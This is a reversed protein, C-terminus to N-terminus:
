KLLALMMHITQSSSDKDLLKYFEQLVHSIKKPHTKTERSRYRLPDLSKFPEM